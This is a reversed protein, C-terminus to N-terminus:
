ESSATTNKSNEDYKDVSVAYYIFVFNVYTPSFFLRLALM